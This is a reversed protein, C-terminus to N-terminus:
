RRFAGVLEVHHSWRFQDVPQVWDLVFGADILAKADRAFTQPNCSVHAIVGIDSRGLEQIQAAAGARPPDIVAADQKRLEEPLLPNRFLDRVEARVDKLGSSHRWGQMLADVMDKAGEVALVEARRALPLAFTGCGAFLDVVRSASGVIEAVCARLATEGHTTAQLFAGPPLLVEVGDFVIPSPARLVAVEDNWVLRTLKYTESILALRARLPAAMPKGGSVAVDLGNSTETITIDLGQKRSAGEVALAECLPLAAVLAPRLLVCKPVSIVTDSGRMHFGALAGSKTRRAAFTARRRSMAPSTLTTRVQTEVGHGALADRVAGAKWDAVFDEQVHQLSCGGCSKFHGCAAKIRLDSPTEIRVNELRDAVLQGRVVDGPVTLPAFVPGDAVGDGLQWLHTIKYTEM